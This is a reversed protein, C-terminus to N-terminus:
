WPYTRELVRAQADVLDFDRGVLWVARENAWLDLAGIEGDGAVPAFTRGDYHHVEGLTSTIFVDDAATGHVAVPTAGEGPFRSSSWSVGDYHVIFAGSGVAYVDNSSSGWVSILTTPPLVADVVTWDGGNWTLAAAIDTDLDIAGVAVCFPETSSCWLDFVLYGDPLPVSKWPPVASRVWLAYGAIAFVTSSDPGAIATVPGTLGSEPGEWGSGNWLFIEGDSTGGYVDSGATGVATANTLPYATAPGIDDFVQVGTESEVVFVQAGAGAISVLTTAGGPSRDMWASGGYELVSGASKVLLAHGPSTGGIAQTGFEDKRVHSWREGDHHFVGALVGFPGQTQSGVAYVDTSSKGWVHDVEDLGLVSWDEGDWLALGGAGGLFVADPAAAWVAHPVTLPHDVVESWTDGELHFVHDDSGVIWADGPASVWGSLPDSLGPVSVTTWSTGNWHRATAEGFVWVDDATSGAVLEATEPAEVSATWAVGDFHVIQPDGSFALGIVYVDDPGSAWISRPMTAVDTEIRTWSFGDYQWVILELDPGSSAHGAVFVHSGAAAIGVLTDNSQVVAPWGFRRCMTFDPTCGGPLCDAFGADYGFAVCPEVPPQDDDCFEGQDHDVTGDGCRRECTAEPDYQCEADCGVPTEDYYAYETCVAGGLDDGDCDEPDSRFGDGCRAPLCVCSSCEEDRSAGNCVGDVGPVSCADGGNLGGDQCVTLQDPRVCGLGEACATGAPCVRGDPCYVAGSELCGGLVLILVLAASGRLM